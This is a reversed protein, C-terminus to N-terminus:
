GKLIEMLCDVKIKASKSVKDKVLSPIEIDFDSLLIVFESQAQVKGGKISITGDAEVDRTIGHLSLKGKVKAPYSGDKGYNIDKNNIIEGKFETKPFKSSEVYNENFHEEMLAKEFQFAKMLVAFQIAGTKIDMVSTVTKNTAEIVEMDGSANFYITGAKTFYRQGYLSMSGFTMLLVLSTLKLTKM